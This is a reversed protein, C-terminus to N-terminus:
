IEWLSKKKKKKKERLFIRGNRRYQVAPWLMTVQKHLIKKLLFKRFHSSPSRKQPENNYSDNVVFYFFFLCSQFPRTIRRADSKKNSTSNVAILIPYMFVVRTWLAPYHKAFTYGYTLYAALKQKKKPLPPPSPTPPPPSLPPLQCIQHNHWDGPISFSQSRISQRRQSSISLHAM